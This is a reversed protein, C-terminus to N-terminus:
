ACRAAANSLGDSVLRGQLQRAQGERERRDAVPSLLQPGTLAMGSPLCYFALQEQLLCLFAQRVHGAFSRWPGVCRCTM